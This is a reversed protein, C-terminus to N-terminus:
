DEDVAIFNRELAELSDDPLDMNHIVISAQKNDLAEALRDVTEATALLVLCEPGTLVIGDNAKLASQDIYVTAKSGSYIDVNSSDDEEQLEQILDTLASPKKM